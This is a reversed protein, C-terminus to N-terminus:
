LLELNIAAVVVVARDETAVQAVGVVVEGDEDTGPLDHAPVVERGEGGTAIVAAAAFDNWIVFRKKLKQIM